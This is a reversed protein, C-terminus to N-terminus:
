RKCLCAFLYKLIEVDGCLPAQHPLLWLCREASACAPLASTQGHSQACEIQDSLLAGRQQRLRKRGANAVEEERCLTRGSFLWKVRRVGLM